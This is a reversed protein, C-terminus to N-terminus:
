CDFQRIAQVESVKARSESAKLCEKMDAHRSERELVMMKRSESGRYCEMGKGKQNQKVVEDKEIRGEKAVIKWERRRRGLQSEEV